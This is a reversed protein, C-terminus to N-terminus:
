AGAPPDDLIEADEIEAGERIATLLQTLADTPDASAAARELTDILRHAEAKTLDNSSGIERGVILSCARLKDDRGNWGDLAGFVTHLKTIQERTAPVPEVPPAPPEPAPDDLIETATMRRQAPTTETPRVPAADPQTADLIDAASVRTVVQTVHQVTEGALEESAYPMAYLVDSAILRCVEGTARAVLMTQPQKKWQDKGTLGLQAARQITWTVTQWDASGRRRGRVVCTDPTSEVVEVEHGRNQVLGRMAHARLAPTGQIVDMSRLAAMPQLGLEAGALIAATIDDPKGRLSAPVFSTRALSQAIKNAQAAEFAWQVLPSVTVQQDALAPTQGPLDLETM